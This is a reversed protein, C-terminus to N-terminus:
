ELRRQDYDRFTNRKLVWNVATPCGSAAQYEILSLRHLLGRYSRCWMSTLMITTMSAESQSCGERCM